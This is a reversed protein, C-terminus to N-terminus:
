KAKTNNTEMKRGNESVEMKTTALNKTECALNAVRTVQKVCHASLALSDILSVSLRCPPYAARRAQFYLAAESQSVGVISGRARYHCRFGGPRLIGMGHGRASTQLWQPAFSVSRMMHCESAAGISPYVASMHMAIHTHSVSCCTFCDRSALTRKSAVRKRSTSCRDDVDTSRPDANCRVADWTRM